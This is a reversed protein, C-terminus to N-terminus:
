VYSGLLSSLLRAVVLIAKLERRVRKGDGSVVLDRYFFYVYNGITFSSVFEPALCARSTTDFYLSRRSTGSMFRSNSDINLSVMNGMDRTLKHRLSGM